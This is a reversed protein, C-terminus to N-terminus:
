LGHRKRVEADRLLDPYAIRAVSLEVLFLVLVYVKKEGHDRISM